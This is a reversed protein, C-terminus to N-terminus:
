FLANMRKGNRYQRPSYGMHKQFQRSFYNSDNFGSRYAIEAITFDCNNLMDIAKQLRYKLLYNGPSEKYVERFLRSFHRPSLNAQNALLEVSLAEIYHNELYAIANALHIFPQKVMNTDVKYQRSLGLVILTFSSLLFTRRGDMKGKYEQIMSDLQEKLQELQTLTLKLRSQFTHGKSMYPEIIFLAHFGALKWLDYSKAFVEDRRFMINCLCFNEAAEYGHVTEDSIVFVDGKSIYFKENEVIHVASGELIIVLESFDAHSHLIMKEDHKGYQIFFPFTNDDTFNDLYLKKLHAEVKVPYHPKNTM